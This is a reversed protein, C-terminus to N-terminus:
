GSEKRIEKMLSAGVGGRPNKTFWGEDEVKYKLRIM